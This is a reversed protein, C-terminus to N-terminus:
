YDTDICALRDGATGAQGPGTMTRQAHLVMSHAEDPRFEWDVTTSAQANGSGDTTIDLWIENQPNAYAPDTSPTDPTAAPDVNNQYHPGSDAPQPGCRQTHAHVGFDRGPALGTANLTVTTRGDDGDSDVTVSSGVPVAAEDYTFANDDGVEGPLQFAVGPTGPLPTPIGTTTEVSTPPTEVTAQDGTSSDDSGCGAAVLATLSAGAVLTARSTKM